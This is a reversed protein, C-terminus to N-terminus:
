PSPEPKRFHSDCPRQALYQRSTRWVQEFEERAIEVRPYDGWDQESGEPVGGYRKEHEVLAPTAAQRKYGQAEWFEALSAACVPVGSEGMLEVSRLVVGDDSLEYLFAMCSGDLGEVPIGLLDPEDWEMRVWRSPPDLERGVEEEV